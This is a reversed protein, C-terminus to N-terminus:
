IYIILIIYLVYKISIKIHMDEHNYDKTTAPKRFFLEEKPQVLNYM